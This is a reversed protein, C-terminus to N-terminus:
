GALSCLVQGLKELLISHSVTDFAKRSNLYVIDVAKGEDVLCDVSWSSPQTVPITGQKYTSDQSASLTIQEVVKGPVSTLSVDEWSKKYTLMVIALKWNDSVERILWFQHYVISLTKTFLKLLNRPSCNRPPDWRAM